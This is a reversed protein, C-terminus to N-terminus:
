VSTKLNFRLYHIVENIEKYKLVSFDENYSTYLGTCYDSIISPDYSTKAPSYINSRINKINLAKLQSDTLGSTSTISLVMLGLGKTIRIDSDFTIIGTSDDINTTSAVPTFITDETYPPISDAKLFPIDFVKIMKMGFGYYTWKRPYLGKPADNLLWIQSQNEINGLSIMGTSNSEDYEVYEKFGNFTQGKIILSKGM